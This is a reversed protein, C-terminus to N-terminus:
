YGLVTTDGLLGYTPDGLVWFTQDVARECSFKTRHNQGSSVEHTITEVFFDDDVFALSTEVVHVRDSIQRGLAQVLRAEAGNTLTIRVQPRPDQYRGVVANCYDLAEVVTPIWKPVFEDGFARIGYTAQSASADITHGVQTESITWTTATVSLATVTAGGAPATLTLTATKGSTRNLSTGVTGPTISVTAGSFGDATASVSLTRVEGPGLTLPLGSATWITVGASSAYSRVPVTCANVVGRLGPEYEFDSGYVPEAGQGRLTAQSTTSRSNLLRYHRSEFVLNGSADVYFLAGVGESLMLDRIATFADVGDVWWRALTTRGTDLVRLGAPWGAADLVVGIAQDTRIGTSMATSIKAAKLRALGDLASLHVEQKTQYPLETPQDLYGRFLPYEVAAYFARFDVLRGPLVQGAIPSSPNASSYRGDDNALSFEMTGAQPPSFERAQDRGRGVFTLPEQRWDGSVDEYPDEVGYSAVALFLAAAWADAPTTSVLFDQDGNFDVSLRYSATVAV